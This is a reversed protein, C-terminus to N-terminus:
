NHFDKTMKIKNYVYKYSDIKNILFNGNPIKFEIKMSGDKIIKIDYEHM